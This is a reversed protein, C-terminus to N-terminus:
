LQQMLSQIDIYEELDCILGDRVACVICGPWRVPKGAATSGVIVHRQLFGDEFVRRRVEVYRRTPMVQFFQRISAVNTEPTLEIGDFNHWIRADATYCVLAGCEDASELAAFFRDALLEIRAHEPNAM